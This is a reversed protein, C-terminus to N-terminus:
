YYRTLIKIKIGKSLYGSTPSNTGNQFHQSVEINNEMIAAGNKVELFLTCPNWNRWM